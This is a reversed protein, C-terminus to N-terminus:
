DFETYLIPISGCDHDNSHLHDMQLYISVLLCNNMKVFIGRILANYIGRNPHHTDEALEFECDWM